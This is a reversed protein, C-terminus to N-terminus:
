ITLYCSGQVFLKEGTIAQARVQQEYVGGEYVKSPKVPMYVTVVIFSSGNVGGYKTWAWRGWLRVDTGRGIVCHAFKNRTMNVVGGYQFPRACKDKANYVVSLHIGEFWGRTREWIKDKKDSKSWCVNTETMGMIDVEGRNLWERIDGSKKQCALLGMGSINQVMIRIVGEGKKCLVDGVTEGSNDLEGQGTSQCENYGGPRNAEHSGRETEEPLKQRGVGVGHPNIM